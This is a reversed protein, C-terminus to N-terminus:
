RIIGKRRFDDRMLKADGNDLRGNGNYDGARIEDRSPGRPFADRAGRPGGHHPADNRLLDDMRQLDRRTLRGDGDVDGRFYRGVATPDDKPREFRIAILAGVRIPTYMRGGEALPLYIADAGAAFDVKTVTAAYQELLRFRIKLVEFVEAFIFWRRARLGGRTGRITLEGDSAECCFDGKLGTVGVPEVFRADYAIKAVFGEWTVDRWPRIWLPVEVTEGTRGSAGGLFFSALSYGFKELDEDGSPESASPFIGIEAVTLGFAEPAVGATSRAVANSVTLATFTTESVEGAVFRVTGLLNTGAAIEGVRGTFTLVGPEADSSVSFGDALRTADATLLAADYVLAFATEGRSLPTDAILYVPLEFAAGATVNTSGLALSVEPPPPPNYAEISVVGRVPLDVRASLGSRESPLVAAVVSVTTTGTATESADFVLSFLKGSGAAVAGSASSLTARGNETATTLDLSESLGTKEIRKLTLFAPDFDLTLSLGKGSLGMANDLSVLVEVEQGAFAAADCVSLTVKGVPSCVADTPLSENTTPTSNGSTYFRSVSTVRYYYDRVTEPVDRYRPLPWQAEIREYANTDAGRYVGYGRVRSNGNPDWTLVVSDVGATAQVNTPLGVRPDVLLMLKGDATGCVCDLDGDGDWDVLAITLGPAFGAHSGGWVKHQLAFASDGLGRYFWIRGEADSVLLDVIGDQDVDGLACSVADTPPVDLTLGDLAALSGQALDLGNTSVTDDRTFMPNGSTGGNLYVAYGGDYLVVLDFLGDGNVDVVLPRANPGFTRSTADNGAFPSTFLEEFAEGVVAGTAPDFPRLNAELTDGDSWAVGGPETTDPFHPNTGNAIEEAFTYGDGDTDSDMAVDSRGYWYLSWRTAEDDVVHAVVDLIRGSDPTVVAQDLARGFADRQEVGDVTWYAFGDAVSPADTRQIDGATVYNTATAFLAGEPDSRVVVPAYGHPNYLFTDSLARSVGGPESTDPFHPNTGNAIEEAFTYGDGDTDSDMAVDPRGYWYLSWRTAADAVYHAVAETVHAVDPDVVVQDLARGFADRQAVGDVTWYAFGDAVSLTPTRQLDGASCYNTTTTCLRGEPDSRVVVPAYGHPNYLFTDSLTRSVGGPEFTDSFLPNTGRALEEAFTAGDGDTDSAADQGLNGYWYLEHGDPVGDGDSDQTASVYHATLTVDQYLTFRAADLARGFSDRVVLPDSESSSWHTFIYGSKTPAPVTTYTWGTELTAEAVTSATGGASTQYTVRARCRGLGVRCM